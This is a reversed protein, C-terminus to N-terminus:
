IFMRKLDTKHLVVRSTKEELSGFCGVSCTGFSGNEHREFNKTSEPVCGDPLDRRDKNRALCCQSEVRISRRGQPCLCVILLGLNIM